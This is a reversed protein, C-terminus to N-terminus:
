VLLFSMNGLCGVFCLAVPRNDRAEVPLRPGTCLVVRGEIHDGSVPSAVRVLVVERAEAHQPIDEEVLM